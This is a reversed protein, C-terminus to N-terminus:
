PVCNLGTWLSWTPHPGARGQPVRLLLPVPGARLVCLHIPLLTAGGAEGDDRAQLGSRSHGRGSHEGAERGSVPVLQSPLRGATLESFAKSLVRTEPTSQIFKLSQPNILIQCPQCPKTPSTPDKSGSRPNFGCEGCQSCLTLWQVMM